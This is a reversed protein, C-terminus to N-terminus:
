SRYDEDESTDDVETPTEDNARPMIITDEFLSSLKKEEKEANQSKTKISALRANRIDEADTEDEIEGVLEEVLDEVTVLGILENSHYDRVLAMHQRFRQLRKLALNANTNSSFFLAPKSAEQIDKKGLLLMEYFDKQYIIGLVEGDKHSLYPMRSYNNDIFLKKIQELTMSDDAYVIKNLPTMVREITKDDFNLSNQILDHEDKEIAGEDYVDTVVAKLDRESLEPKPRVKFIKEAVKLGLGYISTFPYLLYYFFYFAVAIAAVNKEPRKSGLASALIEDFLVGGFLSVLIAMLVGAWQPTICFLGLVLLCCVMGITCLISLVRATAVARERQRLLKIAMRGASSGSLYRSKTLSASDLSKEAFTAFANLCFFFPALVALTIEVALSLNNLIM